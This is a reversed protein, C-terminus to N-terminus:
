DFSSKQLAADFYSFTNMDNEAVLSSTLVSM